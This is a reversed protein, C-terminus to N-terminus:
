NDISNQLNSYPSDIVPIEEGNLDPAENMITGSSPGVIKRGTKPANEGLLYDAGKKDMDQNFKDVGLERVRQHKTGDKEQLFELDQMDSSSNLSRTKAEETVTKARTLEADAQKNAADAQNEIGKAQENAVQAELLQVQLEKIKADMPDPEPKYEEIQTALDPMKKLRAIKGLIVQQLAPDMNPGITQLMFGLDQAQEQDAEPTSVSISLDYEGALEDRNISVWENDTIRIVEEDSLNVANMAMIKEGIEIIGNSLRRIIGMERKATADSSARVATASGGLTGGQGTSFPVSGSLEQADRTQMEIMAMASQPIEPYTAMYFAKSPDVDPNFLYDKDNDFRIRQAPDLANASVGMQANASKAMLDIMGRTIAGVVDQNGETLVADPEGGYVNRKTPLYVVKVFPPKRDPFPNEELRIMVSGAYTAVIPVTSGDGYIDWYGWYETVVLRKRPEDKFEFGSDIKDDSMGMIESGDSEVQIMDVNSYKGDKKLESKSSWFQYAIFQARDVDGDCTPDLLIKDYDIVDLVPRNVVTKVETYEKFQDTDVTIAQKQADMVMQQFQMPDLQGAQVQMGAENLSNTVEQPLVQKQIPERYTIEEEEYEWGVRVFVTGEDVATRVYKDIFWVRDIDKDFQKNLIIANERASKVDDKTKPKVDFMDVSSLFPESLSSYRWESQKRILLPSMKSKGDPIKIKLKGDRRDIWNKVNSVHSDFDSQAEQIDQKLKNVTPPNKWTPQIDEAKNTNEDM